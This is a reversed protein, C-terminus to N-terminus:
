FRNFAALAEKDNNQNIGYELEESILVPKLIESKNSDLYETEVLM